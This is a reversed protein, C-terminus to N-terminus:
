AKTPPSCFQVTKTKFHQSDKPLERQGLVANSFLRRKASGVVTEIKTNNEKLM